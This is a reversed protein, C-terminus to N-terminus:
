INIKLIVKHIKALNDALTTKIQQEIKQKKIINNKLQYTLETYNKNLDIFDYRFNIIRNRMQDSLLVEDNDKLEAIGKTFQNITSLKSSIGTILPLGKLEGLNFKTYLAVDLQSNDIPLNLFEYWEQSSIKFNDKLLKLKLPIQNIQKELLKINAISVTLLLLKKEYSILPHTDKLKISSQEFSDIILEITQLDKFHVLSKEFNHEILLQSQKILENTLRSREKLNASGFTFLKGLRLIPLNNNLSELKTNFDNINVLDKVNDIGEYYRDRLFLEGWLLIFFSLSITTIATLLSFCYSIPHPLQKSRKYSNSSM